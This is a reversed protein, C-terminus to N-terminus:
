KPTHKGEYVARIEEPDLDEPDPVSHGQAAVQNTVMRRTLEQRRPRWPSDKPPTAQTRAWVWGFANFLTVKQDVGRDEWVVVRKKQKEDFREFKVHWFQSDKDFEFHFFLDKAKLMNVQVAIDECTWVTMEELTLM